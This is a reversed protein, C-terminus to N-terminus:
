EEDPDPDPDDDAKLTAIEARLTAIEARQEAQTRLCNVHEAHLAEVRDELAEVRLMLQRYFGSLFPLLSGGVFALLGILLHSLAPDM